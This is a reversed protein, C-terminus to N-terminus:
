PRSVGNTIPRLAAAQQSSVTQAVTRIARGGAEQHALLSQYIHPTLGVGGAKGFSKAYQQTLFSRWVETRGGGFPGEGNVDTMMNQLMTNLFVSEFDQAANWAKANVTRGNVQKTAVAATTATGASALMAADTM